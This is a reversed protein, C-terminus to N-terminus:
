LYVRLYESLCLIAMAQGYPMSTLPIQRYYDLDRGMAKGFSVNVLEGQPNINAIVGRIAKEAMEAYRKDVYRKRVAKLIGYAFGATASSEVYSNADDLLTHWLGSDDQYQALAEIQSELVQLLFRRTANGEPLELLEIFEPIAVMLWSNGRAWRAEAFNHKGDFTWDHFWLSSYRDMLYQVHLLFQYTAEEIFEPRNLLKGIKALPLVSMMLTDDWLQDTNESNYVIHQLGNKQTRPMDYMVWEAWRELYPVWRADRTEEYRYALTLFPCVTNVNKTPTGEALRAEFWDDIIARMQDDGTQQYYQYIGYLGIGHTWEWGAWGKTDIVRGDDLRLLFEGTEDKINVLNDTIRCILAKLDDRSIFHEPQRLLPSHKVSFVTM